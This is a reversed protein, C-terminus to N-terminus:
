HCAEREGDALAAKVANRWTGFCHLVPTISFHGAVRYALMTSCGEEIIVRRIDAILVQRSFKSEPM